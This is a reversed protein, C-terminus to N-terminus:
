GCRARCGVVPGAFGSGQNKRIDNRGLNALPKRTVVLQVGGTSMEETLGYATDNHLQGSTSDYGKPNSSPKISGHDTRHSVVMQDLRQRVKDRFHEFPPQIDGIVDDLDLDERRGSAHQIAKILSRDTAAIVAADIAHHRHDTRDKAKSTGAESVSLDFNLGWHRRLMETLRGPVVWIHSSGEGKEPYLCSLYERAIRSLYQTDVLQRDLFGKEDEFREMADPAFRWRKNKPM